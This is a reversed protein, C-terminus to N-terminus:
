SGGPIVLNSLFTVIGKSIAFGVDFVKKACETKGKSCGLILCGTM